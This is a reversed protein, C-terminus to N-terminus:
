KETRSALWEVLDRIEAAQLLAGMPPMASVSLSPRRRAAASRPLDTRM